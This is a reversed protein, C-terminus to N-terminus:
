ECRFLKTLHSEKALKCDSCMRGDKVIARGCMPCLSSKDYSGGAAPQRRSEYSFFNRQARERRNEEM